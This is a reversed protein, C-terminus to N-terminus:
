FALERSVRKGLSLGSAPLRAIQFRGSFQAGANGKPNSDGRLASCNRSATATKEVKAM